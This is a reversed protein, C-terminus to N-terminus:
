SRVEDGTLSTAETFIATHAVSYVGPPEGVFSFMILDFSVGPCGEGLYNRFKSARFFPSRSRLAWLVHRFNSVHCIVDKGAM